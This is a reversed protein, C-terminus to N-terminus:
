FADLKDRGYVRNNSRIDVESTAPPVPTGLTVTGKAISELAKVAYKYRDLISRDASNEDYGRRAFLNYLTIDVALKRIVGPVPSFPVPYRAMCYGNIEDTAATMAVDIRSRMEPSAEALTAPSEDDDDVLSILVDERVQGKLDDVTCYM